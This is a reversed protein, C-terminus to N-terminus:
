RGATFKYSAQLFVGYRDTEVPFYNTPTNPATQVANASWMSWYRGGIGIGFRETAMWTLILEGQVGTGTGQVPFVLNRLVHFDTGDYTVLPLWAIDAAVKLRNWVLAEASVGLRISQWADNQILGTTVPSEPVTCVGSSPTTMQVCNQANMSTEYRNYGVFVGVKHDRARLVNYGIDGTIYHLTGKVDASTVEFGTPVPTDDLGWDEDNMTGRSLGGAGVFGKVFVNFPTDVRGFIEGSQGKVDRYNLRSVLVNPTSGNQNQYRGTSYWFRTGVDFEWGPTYPPDSEMSKWAAASASEAAAPGGFRYNLGVKLLHLSQNIRASGDSGLNTVVGDETTSTTAPAILRMGSFNLYNYEGKLSWRPSLAYEFGAGLLPGFASVSGATPEGQNPIDTLTIGANTWAAHQFPARNPNMSVESRLWGVGAKGYIMTRGNPETLFGARGTLTALERPTVKCNSGVIQSSTQLCTNSGYAGLFSYEGEIGLVWNPSVQLNYGGQFGAVLGGAAVSGGFISPASPDDVWTTSGALGLHGGLYLGTWSAFPDAAQAPAAAALALFAAGWLTRTTNM